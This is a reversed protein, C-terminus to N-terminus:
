SPPVTDDAYELDTLKGGEVPTQDILADKLIRPPTREAVDEQLDTYITFTKDLDLSNLLRIGLLFHIVHFHCIYSLKVTDPMVAVQLPRDCSICHYHQMLGRRLGAADDAVTQTTDMPGTATTARLRTSLAKFRKELWERLQNFEDRDLKIDIATELANILAKLEEEQLILQGFDSM